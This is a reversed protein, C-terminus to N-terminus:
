GHLTHNLFRHIDQGQASPVLIRKQRIYCLITICCCVSPSAGSLWNVLWGVLWDILADTALVCWSWAIMAKAPRGELLAV